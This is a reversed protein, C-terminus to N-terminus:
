GKEAALIHGLAVDRVDIMNLECELYGAARGNLFNVIIRTAPTLRFDGPGVPLTPNVIVVLQGRRAASLAEREALFKSRCYPGPMDGLELEVTEDTPLVTRRSGSAKLISETPTYVIRDLDCQSADEMVVRTGHYNVALFDDKNATWLDPIGALHYLRHVGELAARVARPDTISGRVLEVNPMDFNADDIDLVRVREGRAVLARVLHQGIFGCGGTVLTIGNRM